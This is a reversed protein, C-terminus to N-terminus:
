LFFPFVLVFTSIPFSILFVWLFVRLELSLVMPWIDFRESNLQVLFSVTSMSMTIADLFLSFFNHLSNFYHTSRGLYHSLPILQVLESSCRGFYYSYFFSLSGVNQRHKIELYSSVRVASVSIEGSVAFSPLLNGKIHVTVSVLLLCVWISSVLFSSFTLVSCIFPPLLLSSAFCYLLDSIFM